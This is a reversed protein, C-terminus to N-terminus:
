RDSVSSRPNQLVLVTVGRDYLINGNEDRPDEEDGPQFACPTHILYLDLYNLGLRDLSAQFAPEKTEIPAGFGSLSM